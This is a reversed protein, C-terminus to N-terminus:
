SKSVGDTPSNGMSAALILPYYKLSQLLYLGVPDSSSILLPVRPSSYRPAVRCNLLVRVEPINQTAFVGKGMMGADRIEVMNLAARAAARFDNRCVSLTCCNAFYASRSVPLNCYACRPREGRPLEVM